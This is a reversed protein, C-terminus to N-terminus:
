KDFRMKMRQGKVGESFGITFLGDGIREVDPLITVKAPTMKGIQKVQFYSM